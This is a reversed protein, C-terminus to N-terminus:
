LEIRSANSTADMDMVICGNFFFLGHFFANWDHYSHYYYYKSREPYLTFTHRVKVDNSKWPPVFNDTDDMKM